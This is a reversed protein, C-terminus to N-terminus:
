IYGTLSVRLFFNILFYMNLVLDIQRTFAGNWPMCSEVHYLLTDVMYVVLSIVSFLFTTAVMVKGVSTQGSILGQSWAKTEAWWHQDFQRSKVVAELLGDLKRKEKDRPTFLLWLSVRAVIIILVGSLLILLSAFTFLYWRRDPCEDAPNKFNGLEATGNRKLSFFIVIKFNAFFYVCDFKVFFAWFPPPPIIM